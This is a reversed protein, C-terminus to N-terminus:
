PNACPFGNWYTEQSLCSDTLLLMQCEEALRPINPRRRVGSFPCCEGMSSLFSKEWLRLLELLHQSLTRLLVEAMEGFSGLPGMWQRRHPQSPMSLPRFFSCLLLFVALVRWFLMGPSVPLVSAKGRVSPIQLLDGEEASLNQGVMLGEVIGFNDHIVKALPALCNTTCSANSPYLSLPM